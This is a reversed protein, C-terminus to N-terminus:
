PLTGYNRTENGLLKYMGIRGEWVRVKMGQQWVGEEEGDGLNRVGRERQSLPQPHPLSPNSNGKTYRGPTRYM